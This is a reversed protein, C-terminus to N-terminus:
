KMGRFAAMSHRSNTKRGCAYVATLIKPVPVDKTGANIRRIKAPNDKIRILRKTIQANKALEVKRVM